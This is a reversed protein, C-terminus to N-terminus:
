ICSIGFLRSSDVLMTTIMFILRHSNGLPLTIPGSELSCSANVTVRQHLFVCRLDSNFANWRFGLDIIHDPEASRSWTSRDTRDRFSLRESKYVHVFTDVGCFLHYWPLDITDKYVSLKSVSKHTTDCISRPKSFRHIISRDAPQLGDILEKSNARDRTVFRFCAIGTTQIGIKRYSSTLKRFLQEPPPPWNM